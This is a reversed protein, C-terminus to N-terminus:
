LQIYEDAPIVALQRCLAILRRKENDSITINPGLGHKKELWEEADIDGLDFRNEIALKILKSARYPGVMPGRTSRERLYYLVEM